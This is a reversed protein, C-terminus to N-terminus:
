WSRLAPAKTADRTGECILSLSGFTSIIQGKTDCSSIPPTRHLEASILLDTRQGPSACQRMGCQLQTPHTAGQALAISVRRKALHGALMGTAALHGRRRLAVLVVRVLM